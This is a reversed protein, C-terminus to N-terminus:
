LQWREEETMGSTPRVQDMKFQELLRRGLCFKVNDSARGLPLLRRGIVSFETGKLLRKEEHQYKISVNQSNKQGKGLEVLVVRSWALRHNNKRGTGITAHHEEGANRPKQLVGTNAPVLWSTVATWFLERYIGIYNKTAM